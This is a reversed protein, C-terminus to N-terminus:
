RQKRGSRAPNPPWRNRPDRSDVKGAPSGFRGPVLRPRPKLGAHASKPFLAGSTGRRARDLKFRQRRTASLSPNSGELRSQPRRCSKWDHEKPWSPCRERRRYPLALPGRKYLPPLPPVTSLFFAKGRLGITSDKGIRSTISIIFPHYTRTRSTKTIRGPPGLFPLGTRRLAPGESRTRERCSASPIPPAPLDGREGGAGARGGPEGSAGVGSLWGSDM